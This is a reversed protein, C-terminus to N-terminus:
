STEGRQNAGQVSKDEVIAPRQSSLANDQMIALSKPIRRVRNTEEVAEVIEPPLPHSKQTVLSVVVIAIVSLVIGVLMPDLGMSDALGLLEAAIAGVAGALMSAVAGPVN